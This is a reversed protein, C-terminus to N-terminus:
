GRITAGKFPFGQCVDVDVTQGTPNVARYHFLAVDDDSCGRLTIFFVARGEYRVDSFGQREVLSRATDENALYGCGGFIAGFFLVLAIFILAFWGVESM